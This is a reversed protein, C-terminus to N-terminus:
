DFKLAFIKKPTFFIEGVRFLDSFMLLPLIHSREKFVKINKIGNRITKFPIREQPQAFHMLRKETNGYPAWLNRIQLEKLPKISEMQWGELSWLRRLADYM